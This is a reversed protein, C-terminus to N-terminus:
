RGLEALSDGMGETLGQCQMLLSLKLIALVLSARQIRNGAPVDIHDL